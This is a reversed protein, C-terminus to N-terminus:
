KRWDVLLTFVFFLFIFTICYDSKEFREIFLSPFFSFSFHWYTKSQRNIERGLAFRLKLDFVKRQFMKLGGM